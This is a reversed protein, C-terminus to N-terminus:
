EECFPSGDLYEVGVHEDSLGEYSAGLPGHVYFLGLRYIEAHVCRCRVDVVGVHPQYLEPLAGYSGDKERWSYFSGVPGVREFEFKGNVVVPREGPRIYAGRRENDLVNVVCLAGDIEVYALGGKFLVDTVRPLRDLRRFELTLVSALLLVGTAVGAWVIWPVRVGESKSETM